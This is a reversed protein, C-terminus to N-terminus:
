SKMRGQFLSLSSQSGVNDGLAMNNITTTSQHFVEKFAGALTTTIIQWDIININENDLMSNARTLVKNFTTHFELELLNLSQAGNIVAEVEGKIINAQDFSTTQPATEKVKDVVLQLAEPTAQRVHHVKKNMAEEQMKNNIRYVSTRGVGYKTATKKIDAGQYLDAKIKAETTPSIAM